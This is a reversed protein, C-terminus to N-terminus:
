GNYPFTKGCKECKYTFNAPKDPTGRETTKVTQIIGEQLELIASGNDCPDHVLWYDRSNSFCHTIKRASVTEPLRNAEKKTKRSM